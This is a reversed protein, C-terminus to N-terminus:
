VVWILRRTQRVGFLMKAMVGIGCAPMDSAELADKASLSIPMEPDADTPLGIQKAQTMNTLLYSFSVFL